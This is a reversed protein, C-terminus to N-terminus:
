GRYGTGPARARYENCLFTEQVFDTHRNWIAFLGQKGESALYEDKADRFCALNGFLGHGYPSYDSFACTICSRIRWGEGLAAALELLEDEFWGSKGSSRIMGAPTELELTLSQDAVGGTPLPDGLVLMVRLARTARNGDRELALPMTWELRCACLDGQALTFLSAAQETPVGVPSLGDFDAGAFDVGRLSLRLEHGDNHIRTTERGRADTFVADYTEDLM